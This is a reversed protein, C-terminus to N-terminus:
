LLDSFDERAKQEGVIDAEPVALSPTVTTVSHDHSPQPTAKNTDVQVVGMPAAINNNEVSAADSAGVSSETRSVVSSAITSIPNSQAERLMRREKRLIKQQLEEDAKEVRERCDRFDKAFQLIHGFLAVEEGGGDSSESLSHKEGFYDLMMSVDGKLSQLVLSLQSVRQTYAATCEDLIGILVDPLPEGTESDMLAKSHNNNGKAAASKKEAAVKKMRQLSHNLQALQQAIAQLPCHQAATIVAIVEEPFDVLLLAKPHTDKLPKPELGRGGGAGGDSGGADREKTDENLRSDSMFIALSSPTVEKHASMLIRVLVELVTTKSDVGKVLSLMALNEVQFGTADGHPTGRNMVNGIQLVVKMVTAFLGSKSTLLEVAHDLAKINDSTAQLLPEYEVAARWLGIREKADPVAVGIEHMFKEAPSWEIKDLMTAENKLGAIEEPEPLIKILQELTDDTLAKADCRWIARAAGEGTLKIKKLTIGVNQLRQGTVVCGPRKKDKELEAKKAAAEERAKKAAADEKKVEFVDRLYQEDVIENVIADERGDWLGGGRSVKKWFFSKLKPGSYAPKPPGAASKGLMKGPPPPPPAGKGKGGPPPPPPPPGGMKKPGSPAPAPPPTPGKEPTAHSLLPAPPAGKAPPPPVGKKGPPPPVGSPPPPLEGKAPPPPIGKPRPLPPPTVGSEPAVVASGELVSTSTTHTTAPKSPSIVRGTQIIATSSSASDGFLPTPIGEEVIDERDYLRADEDMPVGRPAGGYLFESGGGGEIGDNEGEYEGGRPLRISGGGNSHPSRGGHESPLAHHTGELTPVDRGGSSATTSARGGDVSPRRGALRRAEVELIRAKKPSKDIHAMLSSVYNTDNPEPPADSFHLMAYFDHPLDVNSCGYDMDKLKVRHRQQHVFITSFACRFLYEKIPSDDVISYKWISVSFDGFVTVDLDLAAENSASSSSPHLAEDSGVVWNADRGCVKSIGESLVEVSLILEGINELNHLSIQFLKLRKINPITPIEFLLHFYDAYSEQSPQQKISRHVKYTREIFQMMQVGGTSPVGSFMLYCASILASADVHPHGPLEPTFAFVAVHHPDANVWQHITFCLELLLYFNEPSTEEPFFDMVQGGVASCLDELMAKFPTCNIVIFTDPFLQGLDRVVETVRREVRQLQPATLLALASEQSLSDGQRRLASSDGGSAVGLLLANADTPKTHVINWMYVQDHLLRLEKAKGIPMLAAALENSAGSGGNPDQHKGRGFHSGMTGGKQASNSSGGGFAGWLSSISEKKKSNNSELQKQISRLQTPSATENAQGHNYKKVAALPQPKSSGKRSSSGGGEAESTTSGRRSSKLSTFSANSSADDTSDGGGYVFSKVTQLM